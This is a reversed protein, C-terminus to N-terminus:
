DWYTGDLGLVMGMWLGILWLLVGLVVAIVQYKGSSKSKQYLLQFVFGSCWGALPIIVIPRIWWHPGWQPQEGTAGFVFLLTISLGIFIGILSLINFIKTNVIM